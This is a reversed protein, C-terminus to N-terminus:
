MEILKAPIDASRDYLVAGEKEEVIVALAVIGAIRHKNGQRYWRITELNGRHIIQSLSAVIVVASEVLIDIQGLHVKRQAVAIVQAAAIVPLSEITLRLLVAPGGASELVGPSRIHIGIRDANLFRRRERRIQQVDRAKAILSVVLRAQGIADIGFGIDAAAALRQE